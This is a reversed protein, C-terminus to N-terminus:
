RHRSKALETEAKRLDDVSGVDRYSGRYIWAGLKGENVLPRWLEDM